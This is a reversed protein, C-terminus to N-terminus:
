QTISSYLTHEEAIATSADDQKLLRRKRIVLVYYLVAAVIVVVVLLVVVVVVVTVTTSSSSSSSSSRSYTAVDYTNTSGGVSQTIIIDKSSITTNFMLDYDVDEPSYGSVYAQIYM